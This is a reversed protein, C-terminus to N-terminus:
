AWIVIEHVTSLFRKNKVIHPADGPIYVGNVQELIQYLHNKDLKYSIPVVRAGAQELYKVHSRM